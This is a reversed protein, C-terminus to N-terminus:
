TTNPAVSIQLPLKTPDNLSLYWIAPLAAKRDARAMQVACLNTGPHTLNRQDNTLACYLTSYVQAVMILPYTFLAATSGVVPWHSIRFLDRPRAM